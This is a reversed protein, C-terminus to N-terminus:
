RRGGRANVLARVQGILEVLQDVDLDALREVRHRRRAGHLVSHFQGPRPCIEDLLHELLEARRHELAADTLRHAAAPGYAEAVEDVTLGCAACATTTVDDAAAPSPPASAGAPSQPSGTPSQPSGTPAEPATPTVPASSRPATDDNDLPAEGGDATAAADVVTSIEPTITPAHVLLTRGDAFTGVVDLTAAVDVAALRRLDTDTVHDVLVLAVLEDVLREHAPSLVTM